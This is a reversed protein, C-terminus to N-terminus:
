IGTGPPYQFTPLPLYAITWPVGTINPFYSNSISINSGIFRLINSAQDTPYNSCMVTGGGSDPGFYSVMASSGPRYFGSYTFSGVTVITIGVCLTGIFGGGDGCVGEHSLMGGTSQFFSNNGPGVTVRSNGATDHDLSLLGYGDDARFTGNVDLTSQLPDMGIALGNAIRAYGSVDLVLDPVRGYGDLYTMTADSKGIAVGIGSMDAAIVVNSGTGIILSYSSTTGVPQLGHGILINNTGINGSGAGSGIWINSSGLIGTGAGIAISNSARNAPTSTGIPDIWICSYSSTTGTAISNGIFVCNSTNSMGSAVNYGITVVNATNSMLYGSGYGFATNSFCNQLNLFNVGSTTGVFVNNQSDAVDIRYCEVTNATATNVNSLDLQTTFNSTAQTYTYVPRFVSTLYSQVNSTSSM